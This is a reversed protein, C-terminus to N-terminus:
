PEKYAWKSGICCLYFFVAQHFMEDPIMENDQRKKRLKNCTELWCRRGIRRFFVDINATM